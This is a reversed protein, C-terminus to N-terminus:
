GRVARKKQRPKKASKEKAREGLPRARLASKTREIISPLDCAIEDFLEEFVASALELQQVLAKYQKQGKATLSLLKRRGDAPDATRRVIGEAILYDIRQTALQHPKELYEAIDAASVAKMEGIILVTSALRAPITVAGDELLLEGQSAILDVLRDLQNGLFAARFPHADIYTPM